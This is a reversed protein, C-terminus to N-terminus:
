KETEYKEKLELVKQKVIIPNDSSDIKININCFVMFKDLEKGVYGTIEKILERSYMNNVIQEEKEQQLLERFKRKRRERKSTYYYIYSVPSVVAALVPPKQTFNDSRISVPTTNKVNVHIDDPMHLQLEKEAPVDVSAIMYSRRSLFVNKVSDEDTIINKIKLVVADYGMGFVKISDTVNFTNRFIGASDSNYFLMTEYSVIQANQIPRNDVNDIIHLKVWAQEPESNQALVHCSLIILGISLILRM